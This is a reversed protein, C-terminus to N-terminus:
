EKETTNQTTEKKNKGLKVDLKEQQKIRKIEIKALKNVISYIQNETFVQADFMGKETNTEKCYKNYVEFGTLMKANEGFFNKVVYRAYLKESQSFDAIKKESHMVVDNLILKVKYGGNNIIFPLYENNVNAFYLDKLLYKM